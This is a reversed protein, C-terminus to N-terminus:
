RVCRLSPYYDKFSQEQYGDSFRQDWVTNNLYQSSSWYWGAPHSGSEDFGGIAARNNFLVNLESKTPVRWDNHGHADLKAAYDIAAKWRMTLPADAPTAYMPRGTDPSLGAYVTGDAMRGGIQPDTKQAADNSPGPKLQSAYAKARALEMILIQKQGFFGPDDLHMAAQLAGEVANQVVNLYQDQRDADGEM